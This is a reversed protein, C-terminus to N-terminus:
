KNRKISVSLLNTRIWSAPFATLWREVGDKMNPGCFEVLTVPRASPWPALFPWRSQSAKDNRWQFM